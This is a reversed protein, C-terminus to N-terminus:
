AIDQWKKDQRVLLEPAKEPRNMVEEVIKEARIGQSAKVLIVDGPQIFNQLERGVQAVDDYQYINKESMGAVQAGEAIQRARIGVTFLVNAVRPVLTGIRRHEDSSFKGLELMDGLVLIKRKAYSLEKIAEFAQEVAVPSSNYTDDIIVSSKIGKIIKMRGNPTKFTKLSEIADALPVNLENAVALAATCSYVNQSGVIDKILVKYSDGLHKLRFEIGIPQDDNYVVKDDSATFDTELYRGFGVQRQLIEALSAQIAKDDNNFIFVGDAKLAGVLKMKEEAVAAPSSFYEVHVPVDPLRTLVVIDPKIWSVLKEMDGPRDIGMELILVAPYDTSFLAIFFGEVINVLWLFPNNWANQLGLITLSVGIDSNYSLHSKRAYVQNKIAAYIADKTSTKGVSGTVAIIMPKRRKLLIAAEANLISVVMSKFTQKM